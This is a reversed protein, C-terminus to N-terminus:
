VVVRPHTNPVIWIILLLTDLPIGPWLYWPEYVVEKIGTWLAEAPLREKGVHVHM